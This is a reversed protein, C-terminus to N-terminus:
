APSAQPSYAPLRRLMWLNVLAWSVGMATFMLFFPSRFFPDIFWLAGQFSGVIFVSCIPLITSQGRQSNRRLMLATSFPVAWFATIPFSILFLPDDMSDKVLLWLVGIAATGLAVLGLFQRDSAWPALEKRGYKIIMGVLAFEILTTFVLAVWWAKVWWHDYVDFWLEYLLVFHLDHVAFWGVAPLPSSYAEHARALKFSQLLYVFTAAAAIAFFALVWVVNADISSLAAAADYTGM